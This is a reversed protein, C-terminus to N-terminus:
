SGNLLSLENVGHEPERVKVGHIYIITM